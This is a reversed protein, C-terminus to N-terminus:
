AAAPVDYEYRFTGDCVPCDDSPLFSSLNVSCDRCQLERQERLPGRHAQRLEFLRFALLNIFVDRNADAPVPLQEFVWQVHRDACVRCYAYYTSRNVIPSDHACVLM